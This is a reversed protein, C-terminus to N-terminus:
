KSANLGGTVCWWIFICLGLICSVIIVCISCACKNAKTNKQHLSADVINPVASSDERHINSESGAPAASLSERKLTKSITEVIQEIHKSESSDKKLPFGALKASETLAEKWKKKPGKPLAKAFNGKQKRVESPSVHYFIPLVTLTQKCTCRRKSISSKCDMIVVLEDLCWKSNAYNESFVIVAIRSTKIAQVLETWITKGRELDNDDSYVRIRKDRLAKYLHATYGTRTDEGRFSIFVDYTSCTCPKARLSSSPM